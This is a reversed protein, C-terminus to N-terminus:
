ITTTRELALHYRMCFQMMIKVSTSKESVTKNLLQEFQKMKFGLVLNIGLGFMKRASLLYTQNSHLYPMNPLKKQGNMAGISLGYRVIKAM